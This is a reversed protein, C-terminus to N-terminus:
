VKEPTVYENKLTEQEAPKIIPKAPTEQPQGSPVSISKLKLRLWTRLVKQALLLIVVPLIITLFVKAKFITKQRKARKIKRNIQYKLAEYANKPQPKFPNKM